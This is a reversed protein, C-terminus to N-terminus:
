RGQGHLNCSWDSLSLDLQLGYGAGSTRRVGATWRRDCPGASVAAAVVPRDGGWGYSVRFRRSDDHWSVSRPPEARSPDLGGQRLTESVAGAVTGWRGEWAFGARLVSPFRTDDWLAQARAVADADPDDARIEPGLVQRLEFGGEPASVAEVTRTRPDRGPRFSTAYINSVSVAYWLRGRALGAFGADLGAGGANGLVTERYVAAAPLDAQFRGSAFEHVWWGKVAGGAWARGLVPLEGLYAGRAVSFVSTLSRSVTGAKWADDEVGRVGLERALATPLAADAAFRTELSAALGRSQVAAWRVQAAAEPSGSGWFAPTALFGFRDEEVRGSLLGLRAAAELAKGGPVVAADLGLLSTTREPGDHIGVLAPNWLVADARRAETVATGSLGTATGLSAPRQAALPPSSVLALLVVLAFPRM